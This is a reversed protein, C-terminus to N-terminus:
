RRGRSLIRRLGADPPEIMLEQTDTVGRIRYGAAIAAALERSQKNGSPLNHMEPPKRAAFRGTVTGVNDSAVPKLWGGIKNAAKRQAAPAQGSKRRQARNPKQPRTM